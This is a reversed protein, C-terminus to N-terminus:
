IREMKLSPIRASALQRETADTILELGCEWSALQAGARHGIKEATVLVFSRKSNAMAAKQLAVVESASNWFGGQTVGEAGLVSVDFKWDRMARV